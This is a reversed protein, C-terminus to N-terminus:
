LLGPTKENCLASPYPDNHICNIEWKAEPIQKALEKPSNNYANLCNRGKNAIGYPLSRRIGVTNPFLLINNWFPVEAYQFQLSPISGLFKCIHQFKRCLLACPNTTLGAMGTLTKAGFGFLVNIYGPGKVLYILMGACETQPPLHWTPLTSIGTLFHIEM